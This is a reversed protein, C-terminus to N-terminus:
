EGEKMREEAQRGAQRGESRKMKDLLWVMGYCKRKAKYEVGSETYQKLHAM